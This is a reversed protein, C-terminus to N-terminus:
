QIKDRNAYLWMWVPQLFTGHTIQEAHEEQQAGVGRFFRLLGEKIEQKLDHHSYNQCMIFVDHALAYLSVATALKLVLNLSFSAVSSLVYLSWLAGFVMGIGALMRFAATQVREQRDEGEHELVAQGKVWNVMLSAETQMIHMFDHIM